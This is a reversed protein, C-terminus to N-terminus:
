EKTDTNMSKRVAYIVPGCILAAALAELSGNM